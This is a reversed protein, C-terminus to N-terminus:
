GIVVPMGAVTTSVYSGPAALKEVHCVWQWTRAFIAELDAELWKPETYADALLSMSRAPDPDFGRAVARVDQETISKM